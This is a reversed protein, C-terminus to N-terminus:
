ILVQWFLWLSPLYGPQRKRKSFHGHQNWKSTDQSRYLGGYQWWPKAMGTPFNIMGSKFMALELARGGGVYIVVRDLQMGKSAINLHVKIEIIVTHKMCHGWSQMRLTLEVKSRAAFIMRGDSSMTQAETSSSHKRCKLHCYRHTYMSTWMRTHVCMYTYPCAYARVCKSFAQLPLFASYFSKLM